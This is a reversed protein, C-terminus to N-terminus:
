LDDWSSLKNRSRSRRYYIAMLVGFLLGACVSAVLAAVLGHGQARWTLFWMLPGWVPGFWLAYGLVVRWFPAYHPPKVLWGM